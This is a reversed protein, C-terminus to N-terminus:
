QAVFAVLQMVWDGADNETAIAHYTGTATADLDEIIDGFGTNVRTVYTPDGTSTLNAVKDAALLLEHPHTTTLTGSDVATTSGTGATAVDLCASTAIGGYEAIRVDPDQSSSHFQVTVSNSGAAAAVINCAYYIAQSQEGDGTASSTALTYTNNSSDTLSDIKGSHFWGVVVVDLDGAVQAEQFPIVEKAHTTDEAYNVQRFVIDNTPADRAADISRRADISADLSGDSRADTM